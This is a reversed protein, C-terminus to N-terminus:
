TASIPRAMFTDALDARRSCPHPVRSGRPEIRHHEETRAVGQSRSLESGQCSNELLHYASTARDTPRCSAGGSRSRKRTAESLGCATASNVAATVAVIARSKGASPPSIAAIANQKRDYPQVAELTKLHCAGIRQDTAPHKEAILFLHREGEGRTTKNRSVSKSMGTAMDRM